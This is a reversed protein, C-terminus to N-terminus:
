KRRELSFDVLERLIRRWREPAPFAEIQALVQGRIRRMKAQLERRVGYTEAMARVEGVMAPTIRANGYIASLRKRDAPRAKQFLRHSLLTQKCERIDSGISKGLEKESGYLGLDDDKLQFLIGLRDGLRDLGAQARRSAGALKAGTLLPLSFSYRATKYLYLRTIDAAKVPPFAQGYYLDQMQALGVLCLEDSWLSLIGARVELPAPLTSLLEFALFFAIDALCIGMGEGFHLPETVDLRKGQLGYQFHLSPRGRRVEDRDIIDDHILLAAQILEVAAGAQIAARSPSTGRIQSGLAVLGSRLMKGMQTFPELKDMADPGWDNIRAFRRKKERLFAELFAVVKVRQSEFYDM